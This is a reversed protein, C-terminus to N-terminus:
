SSLYLVDKTDKYNESFGYHFMFAGAGFYKNYKAAQTELSRRIFPVDCAYFNKADVWMIERGNVKIPRRFLLDPTAVARGYKQKQEEVLEEQTRVEVGAHRFAEVVSAEFVAADRASKEERSQSFVADHKEVEELIKRQGKSIKPYAMKYVLVPPYDYRRSFSLIKHADPNQGLERSHERVRWSNKIVNQQTYQNRISLLQGVRLGLKESAMDLFRPALEKFCGSTMVIKRARGEKQRSVSERPFILSLM